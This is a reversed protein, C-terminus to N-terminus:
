DYIWPDWDGINGERGEDLTAIHALDEENLEFDYLGANEKIRSPNESKPIAIAGQQLVWRLVVQAPTKGHREAIKGIVLDGLKKGMTLPSYAQVAIGNQKCYAVIDKQQNWPHFEVQNIAPKVSVAESAM